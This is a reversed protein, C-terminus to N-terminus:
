AAARFLVPRARTGAALRLSEVALGPANRVADDALAGALAHLLEINERLRARTGADDLREHLRANLGAFWALEQQDMWSPMACARGRAHWDRFMAQVRQNLNEAAVLQPALAGFLALDTLRGGIALPCLV